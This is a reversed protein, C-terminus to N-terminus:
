GCIKEVIQYNKSIQYIQSICSKYLFEHCKLLVIQNIHLLVIM